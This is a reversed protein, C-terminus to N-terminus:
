KLKSFSFFIEFIEKNMFESRPELNIKKKDTKFIIM